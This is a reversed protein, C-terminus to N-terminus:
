LEYCNTSSSCAPTVTGPTCLNLDAFISSVTESGGGMLVIKIDELTNPVESIINISNTDVVQVDFDLLSGSPTFAQVIFDTTCLNHQILNPGLVLDLTETYQQIMTAMMTDEAQEVGDMVGQCYTKYLPFAGYYNNNIIKDGCLLAFNLVDFDAPLRAKGKELTIMKSRSPNVKLGLQYSVKAAIKILQAPEIVGELDHTPIDIAVADLLEDFTRYKIETYM